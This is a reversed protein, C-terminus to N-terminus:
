GTSWLGLISPKRGCCCGAPGAPPSSSWCRSSGCCRRGARLIEDHWERAREATVHRRLLIDAYGMIGTLPTRLEHGIRSLFETKMQEVERERRLDRIVVVRGAVEGAPGLLAGSSVAVPIDDAGTHRVSALAGVTPSAPRGAAGDPGRRGRGRHRRPGPDVTRPGTPPCGLLEEAARNFDTIFGGDDVAVLADTMGAVVAELRNRLRTEDDAAAQLAAAQEEVAGVMSDFASGLLAVEDEGTIDARESTEGAEIRAAVNTLRRVGATIRDGTFAALALALITGGLAILFLTRYLQTRASLVSTAPTSLVVAM